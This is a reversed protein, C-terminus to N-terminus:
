EQRGLVPEKSFGDEVEREEETVGQATSLNERYM